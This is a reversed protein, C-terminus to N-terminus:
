VLAELPQLPRAQPRTSLVVVETACMTGNLTACLFYRKGEQVATLMTQPGDTPHHLQNYLEECGAGRGYEHGGNLFVVTYRPGEITSALVPVAIPIRKPGIELVEGIDPVTAGILNETQDLRREM